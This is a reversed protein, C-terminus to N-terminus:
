MGTSHSNYPTSVTSNLCLRSFSSSWILKSDKDPGCHAFGQRGSVAGLFFQILLHINSARENTSQGPRAQYALSVEYNVYDGSQALEEESKDVQNMSTEGNKEKEKKSKEIQRQQQRDGDIGDVDNKPRQSRDQLNRHGELQASPTSSSGSSGAPNNLPATGDVQSDKPSARYIWEEKPYDRDTQQDPLGRMAIIRFPNTGLGLDSIRVADVFKPLSAQMIDEVMDVVSTFMSPDILPWVVAFMANLWETSEPVPPSHNLGRKRHM